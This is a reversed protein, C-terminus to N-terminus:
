LRKNGHRYSRTRNFAVKRTYEAMLDIGYHECLQLLFSLVRTLYEEWGIEGFETDGTEWLWCAKAILGHLTCMNALFSENLAFVGRGIIGLRGALGIGYREDDDLLRILIDAFESGVGEPKPLGGGIDLDTADDTGWRRWADSAEAVETHLLAMAELFLVDEDWWGLAENIQRVEAQM